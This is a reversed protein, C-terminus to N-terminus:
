LQRDIRPHAPGVSGPLAIDQDNCRGPEVSVSPQITGTIMVAVLQFHSFPERKEVRVVDPIFCREVIRQCIGPWPRDLHREIAQDVLIRLQQLVLAHRERIHKQIMVKELLLSVTKLIYSLSYYWICLLSIPITTLAPSRIAVASGM